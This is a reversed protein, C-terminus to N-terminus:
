GDSRHESVFSHGRDSFGYRDFAFGRALAAKGILHMSRADEFKGAIEALMVLVGVDQV